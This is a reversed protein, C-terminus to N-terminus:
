QRKESPGSMTSVQRKGFDYHANSPVIISVFAFRLVRILRSRTACYSPRQFSPVKCFTISFYTM